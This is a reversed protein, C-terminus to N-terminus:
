EYRIAETPSIRSVIATSLFLVAAIVAVFGGDLALIWRWDLAVPVHDVMYAAADLPVLHTYRQVLLLGLGVANGWLLGKGTLVLARYMFIRRIDSGDMGMSKLIGIMRTREMVLILLATILNFLAVVLMIAVIVAANVDHTGLWNFIDAYIRRAGVASINADDAGDDLMALAGNINEAVMDSRDFDTVFVEYGSVRDAAWGNIKQVNRIDTLVMHVGAADVGSRYVGCVKFLDRHAQGEEDLTLMEVRGGSRVGLAEACALPMILEKYRQEGFRPLSGEALNGAFLSLDRGAEVGRMMVGVTATNSRLVGGRVAYGAVSEVGGVASLMGRREPTDAIPICGSSRLSRLDTVTVDAAMGSIASTLEQRFGSIVALAVLMVAVSVAVAITAVRVMVGQSGRERATRRAIELPLNKM